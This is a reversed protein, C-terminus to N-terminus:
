FDLGNTEACEFDWFGEKGRSPRDRSDWLRFRWGVTDCSLSGPMHSVPVQHRCWRWWNHFTMFLIPSIPLDDVDDTALGSECEVGDDYSSPLCLFPRALFCGTDLDQLL